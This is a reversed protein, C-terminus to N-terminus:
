KAKLTKIAWIIFRGILYLPYVFFLSLIALNNFLNRVHDRLTVRAGLYTVKLDDPIFGVNGYQKFDAPYFKKAAEFMTIKDAASPEPDYKSFDLEYIHGGTSFSYMYSPSEYHMLGGSFFLIASLGLCGLIVLGERAIVRKFKKKSGPDKFEVNVKM